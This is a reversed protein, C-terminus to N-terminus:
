GNGLVSLIDGPMVFRPQAVSYGKECCLSFAYKENEQSMFGSFFCLKGSLLATDTIESNEFAIGHYKILAEKKTWIMHFAKEIDDSNKIINQEAQSFFRSALKRAKETDSERLQIDFGVNNRSVACGVLRGSHSISFNVDGNAFYPKGFNGQSLKTTLADDKSMIENKILMYRLLLRGCKHLVDGGNDEQPLLKFFRASFEETFFNECDFLSLIISEDLNHKM